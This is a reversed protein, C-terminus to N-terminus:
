QPKFYKALRHSHVRIAGLSQDTGGPTDTRRARQTAQHRTQAARHRQGRPPVAIDRMDSREQMTGVGEAKRVAPAKMIM